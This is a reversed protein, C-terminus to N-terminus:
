CVVDNENRKNVILSKNGQHKMMDLAEKITTMGDIFDIQTKMVDKVQILPHHKM